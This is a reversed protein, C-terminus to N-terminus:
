DDESAQCKMEDFLFFQKFTKEQELYWQAAFWTKTYYKTLKQILKGHLASLVIIDGKIIYLYLNRRHGVREPIEHPKRRRSYTNTWIDRTTTTPTKYGNNLWKPYPKSKLSAEIRTQDPNRPATARDSDSDTLTVKSTGILGNMQRGNDHLYM